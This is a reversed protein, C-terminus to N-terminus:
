ISICLYFTVFDQGCNLVFWAGEVLVHLDTVIWVSGPTDVGVGAALGCVM